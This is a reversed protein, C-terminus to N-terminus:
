EFALGDVWVTFPEWGWSDLSLGVAGIRGLSVEGSAKREWEASGALPVVVRMWTWRAESFPPNQLLNGGGAPTYTLVGDKGYLRIVPGANQWGPINPNQTKIWFSLQKKQSLDWGADRSAPFVATAYAGPYPDPTFRLSQQGVVASGDDVFGIRGRGDANGELEFGWRAAEGETGIEERVENVVVLDRFGLGAVAGNGVTLGVRYFGPETYTHSVVQAESTAGGLDWRFTLPRGEPDRSGSADFIVPRGVTAREPGRLVVVPASCASGDSHGGVKRDAAPGPVPASRRLPGSGVKRGVALERPGGGNVEVLNTVGELYNGERNDVCRNGALYVWDGWQGWIGWRNDHLDNNQVIWHETRWAGGKTGVDGQFAIGAGNNHHCHNGEILTHSSPGKVIVIGGHRFVPEPANHFGTPLGNYAAENGILMTQDSGGLWFGYSGHNAKNRIYTNGPSWSEICNNNAYSTDNEVFLNGTSVWGNLVRIFLGDGGHTIDNRYWYNDNSGSEILVSTSDRAHVEGKSRDIRLGYSLINELFRNRCATWLKACVNSCHSFDNARILNDDSEILHLGDWVRNARNKEFVSARVRTLLIGGRPPLEGWGFEPNHYNDSFDCGEVRWARGDSIALGTTFGKAKMNRLTVDSVGDAQIGTGANEYSSRDGPRAPGVLTAGNGDITIHSAKIVLRAHLVANKELTTNQTIVIERTPGM